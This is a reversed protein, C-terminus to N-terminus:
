RGHVRRWFSSSFGPDVQKSFRELAPFFARFSEASMRADKAPYVAGGVDRVVQDLDDLLDLTRRGRFALDVALTLGPRPFSLLGPSARSGFRKLVGLWATESSGSVRALITRLAGGRPGEPVVCQYQLFGRAGYLRNWEGISDLPFFFPEYPVTKKTRKPFAGRYQLTNFASLTVRNLLRSPADFPIRFRPGRVPSPSTTPHSTHGGRLYIGRGLSRGSALCDVWAVTYEHQPDDEAIALFEDLGGFRIRDMAIGSGAVRQLRIEAWLILGTLGLGGITAAFLEGHTEPSCVLRDGSSRLLELRTVHAGFTGARHHNKGHIDNAIAGGVTVWKTGPVVPLFWGRPVVVELIEALTVGAECQLLGGDSLAIFRDLGTADILVGGENLCSDGYSRGCGSALLPHPIDALAPPQDRWTAPIVGAHHVTPYRGWSGVPRTPIPTV